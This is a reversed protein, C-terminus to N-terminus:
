FSDPVLSIDKILDIQTPFSWCWPFIAFICNFLFSVGQFTIPHPSPLGQFFNKGPVLSAKNLLYCMWCKEVLISNRSYWVTHHSFCLSFSINIYAFLHLSCKYEYIQPAPSILIWGFFIKDSKLKRCICIFCTFCIGQWKLLWTPMKRNPSGESDHNIVVHKLSFDSQRPLKVKKKRWCLPCKFCVSRKM